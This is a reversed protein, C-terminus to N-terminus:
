ADAKATFRAVHDIVKELCMEEMSALRLLHPGFTLHKTMPNPVIVTHLGATHAAKAGNPSDEFAIAEHPALELAELALLYLAPDPKVKEVFDATCVCSFYHAIRHEDLFRTVWDLHSSSAIGLKLGMTSATELYSLVGPRLTRDQMLHAHQESSQRKIDEINLDQDTIELLYQYPDFADLSTGIVQTYIDLPLKADYKEYVHCLSDYWVSETDIVLGDFDFVLGKIM